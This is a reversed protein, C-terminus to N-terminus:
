LSVAPGLTGYYTMGDANERAYKTIAPGSMNALQSWAGTFVTENSTPVQARSNPFGRVRGQPLGENSFDVIFFLSIMM